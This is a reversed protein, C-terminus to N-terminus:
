VCLKPKSGLDEVWDKEMCRCAVGDDGKTAGGGSVGALVATTRGGFVEFCTRLKGM